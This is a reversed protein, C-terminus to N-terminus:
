MVAGGDESAEWEDFVERIRKDCVEVLETARQVFWVFAETLSEVNEPHVILEDPARPFRLTQRVRAAERMSAWGPEGTPLVYDAYHVRAFANFAFKIDDLMASTSFAASPEAEEDFDYVNELRELEELSFVVDRRQRAAHAHFTMRYTVGDLADFVARAFARSWYVIAEEDEEEEAENLGELCRTTDHCLTRMVGWYETLSVADDRM